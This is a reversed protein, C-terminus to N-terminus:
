TGFRSINHFHQTIYYSIVSILFMKMDRTDERILNGSSSGKDQSVINSNMHAICIMGSKMTTGHVLKRKIGEKQPRQIVTNVRCSVHLVRSM